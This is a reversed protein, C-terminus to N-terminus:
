KPPLLGLARAKVHPIAVTHSSFLINKRGFADSMLGMFPSVIGISLVTAGVALGAQVPTAHFDDMVMPLVSQLSYVNLIEQGV